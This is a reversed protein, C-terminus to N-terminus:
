GPTDHGKEFEMEFLVHETDFGVARYFACASTNEVPTGVELELCGKALAFSRAKAVLAKGIGRGRAAEAVVLEDVLAVPGRDSILQRLSIHCMGVVQGDLEALYVTERPDALTRRVNSRVEEATPIAPNGLCRALELALDAAAEIDAETALRIALRGSGM